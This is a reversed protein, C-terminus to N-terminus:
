REVTEEGDETDSAGLSTGSCASLAARRWKSRAASVAETVSAKTVRAGPSLLGRVDSERSYLTLCKVLTENQRAVDQYIALYEKKRQANPMESGRTATIATKFVNYYQLWRQYDASSGGCPVIRNINAHFREMLANVKGNEANWALDVERDAVNLAEIEARRTLASDISEADSVQRYSSVGALTRFSLKNKQAASKQYSNHLLTYYLTPTLSGEGVEMVTVQGQKSADHNYTYSQARVGCSLTLAATLIIIYNKM